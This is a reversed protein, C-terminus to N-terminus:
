CIFIAMNLFVFYRASVTINRASRCHKCPWQLWCHKQKCKERTVNSSFRTHVVGASVSLTFTSSTLLKCNIFLVTGVAFNNRWSVCAFLTIIIVTTVLSNM